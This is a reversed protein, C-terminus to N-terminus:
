FPITPEQGVAKYQRTEVDYTFSCLGVKGLWSYRVKQIHVDVVGTGFDRYVTIGNDTKNFFHASGSINYLTPVEYKDGVKGLKTPHAVLIVHIGHTAAFAKIRTLCDSVYQTETQGAMAKHEIYNWPDILLGKIGKRLVLEKAKELIGNLTVDIKNINIFYFNNNIFRLSADMEDVSMQDYPNVRKAFSKGVAKEMLKTAHLSSPQNEFSCVAWQWYHNKATEVIVYDVFESKGSGPIGTVTTFQGGMLQIHDDFGRIGVKVGSPYGNYYFSHIDKYLEDVSLIGEIPFESANRLVEKIKDGGYKVLIDNADKCGEPYDIKWCRDYGFRRLLEAQLLNGAEDNDTFLVITKIDKFSEWCSDLYEMKLIGKAAGNPVSIVPILGAEIISLCDMEGETIIAYDKGQLSDINYFVMEADKSLMFDKDKARYKINVLEGSKYYNFCITDVNTKAKPMWQNVMSVKLKNLTMESIGRGAFWLVCDKSLEGTKPEPRKYTRKEVPIEEELTIKYFEALNKVAEIYNINKHRMVFDISDGSVGCGFCKYINKTQSVKFSPSKENHFPCCAVLNVGDKKLKVYQNVVDVVNCASKLQEISHQAIM